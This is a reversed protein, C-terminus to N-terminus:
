VRLSLKLTSKSFDEEDVQRVPRAICRHRRGDPTDYYGVIRKKEDIDRLVTEVSHPFQVETLASNSPLVYARAIDNVVKARLVTIGANNIANVFLFELNPMGPVDVTTFSGDAHRMFGHPKWWFISESFM